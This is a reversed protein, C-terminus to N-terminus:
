CLFPHQIFLNPWGTASNGSVIQLQLWDWGTFCTMCNGHIGIWGILCTTFYGHIGIWGILAVQLKHWMYM